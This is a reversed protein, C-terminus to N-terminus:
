KDWWDFFAHTVMGGTARVLMCEEDTQPPRGLINWVIWKGVADSAVFRPEHGAKTLRDFESEFLGKCDEFGRIGDPKWQDLREAVVEMLKEDRADDLRLNDLRTAAMFVSAVTLIFDSHEIDVERLIPFRDVLPTFMGVANIQAAQVLNEARELLPDPQSTQGSSSVQKMKGDRKMKELWKKTVEVKKLGGTPSPIELTVREGFLADWFGVSTKM